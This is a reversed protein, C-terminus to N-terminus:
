YYTGILDYIRNLIKKGVVSNFPIVELPSKVMRFEKLRIDVYFKENNYTITNLKKADNM